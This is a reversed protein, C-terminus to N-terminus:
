VFDAITDFTCDGCYREVFTDGAGGCKSCLAVVPPGDIISVGAWYNAWLRLLHDIMPM